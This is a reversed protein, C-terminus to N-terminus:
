PWAIKEQCGRKNLCVLLFRAMKPPHGWIDLISPLPETPKRNCERVLHWEQPEKKPNSGGFCHSTEKQSGRLVLRFLAGGFLSSGGKGQKGTAEATSSMRLTLSRQPWTYCSRSCLQRRQWSQSRPVSHTEVPDGHPNSLGFPTTVTPHQLDGSLFM